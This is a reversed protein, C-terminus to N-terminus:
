RPEGMRRRYRRVSERYERRQWRLVLTPLPCVSHHTPGRYYGIWWDATDIYIVPARDTMHAPSGRRALMAIHKIM